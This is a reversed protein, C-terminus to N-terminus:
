SLSMSINSFRGKVLLKTVTPNSTENKTPVGNNAAAAGCIWVRVGDRAGIPDKILIRPALKPAVCPLLTTVKPPVGAIQFEQLSVSISATTGTPAVVPFTITVTPPVALLPLFKAAAPEGKIVFRAGVEPGTPVDRVIVPLPNVAPPTREGVTIKAGETLALGVLKVSWDIVTITGAPATVPFMLTSTSPARDFPILKVTVDDPGLILLRDGFPPTTPVATVM